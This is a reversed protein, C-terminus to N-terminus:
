LTVLKRVTGPVVKQECADADIDDSLPRAQDWTAIDRPEIGPKSPNTHGPSWEGGLEMDPNVWKKINARKTQLGAFHLTSALLGDSTIHRNDEDISWKNGAAIWYGEDETNLEDWIFHSKFYDKFRIHTLNFDEALRRGRFSPLVIVVWPRTQHRMM